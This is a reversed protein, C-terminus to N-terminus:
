FRCRSVSLGLFEQPPVGLAGLLHNAIGNTPDLILLWLIGIAVPTALLPVMLVSRVVRMGRFPKRLLMAIALGLITEIVVAGVTFYVTRWVAPWFRRGDGLADLYNQGGDYGKGANVAGFADTFSLHLTFLLPFIIMLGVFGLAPALMLWRLRRHSRDFGSM